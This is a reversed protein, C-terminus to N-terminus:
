KNKSDFDIYYINFIPVRRTCTTLCPPQVIKEVETVHNFVPRQTAPWVRCGIKRYCHQYATPKGCFPITFKIKFSNFSYSFTRVDFLQDAAPGASPGVLARTWCYPPRAQREGNRTELFTLAHQDIKFDIAKIPFNILVRRSQRKDKGKTASPM